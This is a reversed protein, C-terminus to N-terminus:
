AEMKDYGIIKNGFVGSPTEMQRNDKIRIKGFDLEQEMRYDELKMNRFEEILKNM